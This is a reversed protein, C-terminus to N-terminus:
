HKADNHDLPTIKQWVFNVQKSLFSLMQNTIWPTVAEKQCFAFNKNHSLQEIGNLRNTM